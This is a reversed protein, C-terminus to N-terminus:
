LQPKIEGLLADLRDANRMCEALADGAVRTIEDDVPTGSAPATGPESCAQPVAGRRASAKADRLRRALDLGRADSDAIRKQYDDLIGRNREQAELLRAANDIETKAALAAIDALNRDWQAQIRAEGVEIWHGRLWLVGAAVALAALGYAMLRRNALLWIV